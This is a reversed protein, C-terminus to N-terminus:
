KRVGLRALGVLFGVGLAWARVFLMLPAVLAVPPDRRALKLIFPLGTLVLALWAALGWWALQREWLGALLLGGGLAALGMQLKLVQPTHSDRVLKDPHERMVKVKWYGIGFKRRVYEGLTRDHLHFVRARPALVLRHGAEALKFSFAQDEVSATPFFEDFGGASLFVDRRYGASYTDVFDIRELGRMRDYKDEYEAQVFRAVLERQRTRYVGKVGAVSEDAFPAAMQAIWDPTPACDADTFLLVEGRAARAGRNRAAAPGANPQSIVRVGLGRAVDATADTSGDDVVIVEYGDAPYTQDRLAHLCAPLTEAGNYVPVTVSIFPPADRQEPSPAPRSGDEVPPPPSPPPPANFQFGTLAMLAGGLLLSPGFVVAHLALGAALGAEQGVDFLSLVAICVGEFVGVSGPLSPVAIGAQLGALLLLSAALPSAPASPRDVGRLVCYNTAAGLGWVVLSGGLGWLLGPVRVGGELGDLLASVFRIRALAPPLRDRLLLLAVLSLWAAGGALALLRTPLALWAPLTLAVSLAGMLALLMAVDWLKELAVTSMGRARNGQGLAAARVVVDLQSFIVYNAVQGALLATLLTVLRFRQPLLLGWWRLARALITLLVTAVALGMWGPHASRVARGVQRWDLAGVLWAVIGGSVAVGLWFRWNLRRHEGRLATRM